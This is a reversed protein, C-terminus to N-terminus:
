RTAAEWNRHAPLHLRLDALRDVTLNPRERMLAERVFTGVLAVVKCGASRASRIGNLTDEIVVTEEPRVGLREAALLYPEPHPKARTVDEATVIVDFLERIGFRNVVFQQDTASASTAMGLPLQGHLAHLLELAGEVPQADALLRRYITRKAEIVDWLEFRGNGHRELVGSYVDVEPRGKFSLLEESSVSFGLRDFIEEQAQEHLPESDVIVGDMDFIVARSDDLWSSLDVAVSHQLTNHFSSIRVTQAM